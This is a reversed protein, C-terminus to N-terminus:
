VGSRAAAALRAASTRAAAKIRDEDLTKLEGDRYLVRGDVITEIQVLRDNTRDEVLFHNVLEM